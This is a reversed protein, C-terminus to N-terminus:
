CARLKQRAKNFYLPSFFFGFLKGEAGLSHKSLGKLDNACDGINLLAPGSNSYNICLVQQAPVPPFMTVQM